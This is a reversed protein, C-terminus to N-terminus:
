ANGFQVIVHNINIPCFQMSMILNLLVSKRNTSCIKWRHFLNEISLFDTRDISLTRLHELWVYQWMDISGFIKSVFIHSYPMNTAFIPLYPMKTACIQLYPMKQRSIKYIRAWRYSELIAQPRRYSALNHQEPTCHLTPNYLYAFGGGLMIQDVDRNSVTLRPWM